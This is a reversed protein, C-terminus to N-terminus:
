ARRSLREPDPSRALPTAPDEGCYRKGCRAGYEQWSRASCSARPQAKGPLRELVEDASLGLEPLRSWGTLLARLANPGASFMVPAIEDYFATEPTM